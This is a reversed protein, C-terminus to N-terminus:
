DGPNGTLREIRTARIVVASLADDRVPDGVVGVLEGLMAAPNTLDAPDIYGKTREIGTAPDPVRVRYLLPLNTGDYVSSASLRGVLTYARSANWDAIRRALDQSAADATALTAQIARRQNRSDIRLRLWDARQTLSALTWEDTEAAIARTYEALLEDLAEDLQARPMTRAREFAADLDDLTAASLPAAPGGKSSPDPPNMPEILEDSVAEDPEPQPRESAQNTIIEPTTNNSAPEASQEASDAQAEDPEDAETNRQPEPAPLEPANDIEEPTADRISETLIYAGPRQDVAPPRPPEVRYALIDGDDGRLTEILPLETGEDLKRLYVPSWSGEVGGLMSRARLRSAETLVVTDGADSLTGSYAPVYAGVREPYLVRTYRGSEEAATLITGAPAETITYFIEQDGSRLPAPGQLVVVARTQTQAPATAADQTADADQATAPAAALIAAAASLARITHRTTM